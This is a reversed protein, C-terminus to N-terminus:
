KEAVHITGSMGLAFHPPSKDDNQFTCLIGYDRGPLLDVDIQGDPSQGALSLLVGPTDDEVLSFPDGGKTAVDVIQPVTVGRKLLVMNVEHRVTGANRFLFTHHGPPVTAPYKFSYDSGVITDIHFDARAVPATSANKAPAAAGRVHIHTFMGLKFHQPTKSNDQLNCIIAYTRGPLLRTTLQSSSTLGPGAFLVGVHRELLPSVADGKNLTALFKDLTVEPKLLVVNFEHFVKGRNQIRFSTPGAPLEQPAQFAYDTAVVTIPNVAVVPKDGALLIAPLAVALAIRV